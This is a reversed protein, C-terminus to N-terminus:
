HCCSRELNSLRRNLPRDPHGSELIWYMIRVYSYTNGFIPTGWFPHNIISFGILISSKPTGSNESVDVDRHRPQIMNFGSMKTGLAAEFWVSATLIRVGEFTAVTQKSTWFVGASYLNLVWTMKKFECIRWLMFDCKAGSFDSYIQLSEGADLPLAKAVSWQGLADGSGCVAVMEKASISRLVMQTM